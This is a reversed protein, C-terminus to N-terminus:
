QRENFVGQAEEYSKKEYDLRKDLLSIIEQPLDKINRAKKCEENHKQFAAEVQEKDVNEGRSLNNYLITLQEAQDRIEIGIPIFKDFALLVNMDERFTRVVEDQKEWNALLGGADELIMTEYVKRGKKLHSSLSKELESAKGWEQDIEKLIGSISTDLEQLATGVPRQRNKACDLLREKQHNLRDAFSLNEIKKGLAEQIKMHKNVDIGLQLDENLKEYDRIAQKYDAETWKDTDEENPRADSFKARLIDNLLGDTKRLMVEFEKKTKGLQQKTQDLSLADASQGVNFPQNDEKAMNRSIAMAQESEPAEKSVVPAEQVREDKATEVEKRVPAVVPAEQIREDKATEVEKQVPAVVPMQQAATALSVEGTSPKQPTVPKIELNGIGMAIEPLASTNGESRAIDTIKISEATNINEAVPTIESIIINESTAINKEVVNDKETQSFETKEGDEPIHTDEATEAGESIKIDDDVNADDLIKIDKSANVDKEYIPAHPTERAEQKNMTGDEPSIQPVPQPPTLTTDHKNKSDAIKVGILIAGLVTLLAMLTAYVILVKNKTDSTKKVVKIVHKPKQSVQVQGIMLIIKSEAFEFRLISDKESRLLSDKIQFMDYNSVRVDSDIPNNNHTISHESALPCFHLYGREIYLYALGTGDDETSLSVYGESSLCLFVEPVDDLNYRRAPFYSSNVELIM